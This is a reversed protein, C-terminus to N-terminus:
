YIINSHIWRFEHIGFKTTRPFHTYEHIGNSPYPNSCSRSASQIGYGCSKSCSTWSSWSSWGGNVSFGSVYIYIYIYLTVIHANTTQTSSKKYTAVVTLKANFSSVLLVHYFCHRVLYQFVILFLLLAACLGGVCV